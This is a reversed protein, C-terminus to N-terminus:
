TDPADEEAQDVSDDEDVQAVPADVSTDATSETLEVPNPDGGLGELNTHIM